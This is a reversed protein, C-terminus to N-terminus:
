QKHSNRSNNQMKHLLCNPSASLIVNSANSHKLDKHQHQQVNDWSVYGQAVAAAAACGAITHDSYSM